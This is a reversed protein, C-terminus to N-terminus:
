KIQDLTQLVLIAAKMPNFISDVYLTENPTHINDIRPGIVLQEIGPKLRSFWAPEVGGRTKQLVPTVGFSKFIQDTYDVLKHTSSTDWPYYDKVITIEDKSFGSDVVNKYLKTKLEDLVANRSACGRTGISFVMKDNSPVVRFTSINSTKKPYNQAIQEPDNDGEWDLIDCDINNGFMNILYKSNSSSLHPGVVDVAKVTIKVSNDWDEYPYKDKFTKDIETNILAKIDEIKNSYDTHFTVTATKPLQNAKYIVEDGFEDYHSYNVIQINKTNDKTIANLVKLVIKDANAGVNAKGNGLYKIWEQDMCHGGKLGSVDIEYSYDLVKTTDQEFSHKYQYECYGQCGTTIIDEAGAKGEGDFNLVYDCGELAVKSLKSAGILGEEEDTTFLVRLPGHSVSPNTLIALIMAIGITDDAGISTFHDKSHIIPRDGDKDEVLEIMHSIPNPVDKTGGGETTQAKDYEFVMDMHGQLIAKPFKTKGPTAEVDFWINGAEDQMPVWGHSIIWNKLYTQIEVLSGSPRPHKAAEKFETITSTILQKTIDDINNTNCSTISILSSALLTGTLIPSILKIKKMISKNYIFFIYQM